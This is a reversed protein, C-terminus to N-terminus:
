RDIVKVTKRDESLALALRGHKLRIADDGFLEKRWGTLARVDAQDNIAIQELDDVTAILKQAVDNAECRAKLLVKLLDIVPGLGAPKDPTRPVRPCKEDPTSLGKSVAELMGTAHKSRAFHKALRTQSLAKETTPVLAALEVLVDDKAIRRRPVDQKQAIRERWATVEKLVALFRPKKDRSKIRRWAESPELTYTAPNLLIEMEDAVWPTRGSKRLDANLRVYIDRLHTVDALAYTLQKDTLPRRSWDTFRQSKDVRAPTLKSVLTEYGASEGFGCVMAAVQSDFLPTPIIGALHFFIELDQRAAHFVKVVSPNQFLEYLPALELGDALADIGHAEDPGAIQILCLLPWFTTERHFETDVTVFDATSLRQCLAALDATNDILEM